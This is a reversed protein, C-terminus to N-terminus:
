IDVVGIGRDRILDSIVGRHCYRIDAEYCMLAIKHESGLDLINELEPNKSALREKYKVFMRQYDDLTALGKREHSDIGLEPIHEYDIGFRGLNERLRTKSFSYRRSIPNRRVDVLVEIKNKILTNIFSDITQGEYGITVIGTEDRVYSQKKEIQSFITFEPYARYIEHVLRREDWHNMRNLHHRILETAMYDLPEEPGDIYQITEENERVYEKGKFKALDHYMEFSFPGFKYPVFDYVPIRKNLEPDNSLIFMLKVLRM